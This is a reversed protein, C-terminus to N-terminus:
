GNDLEFLSLNQLQIASSSFKGERRSLCKELFGQCFKMLNAVMILKSKVHVSGIKTSIEESKTFVSMLPFSVLKDCVNELGAVTNTWM